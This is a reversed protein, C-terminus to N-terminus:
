PVVITDGPVLSVGQMDGKKVALTYDFPYRRAAQRRAPHLHAEQQRLPHTWRRHRHGAACDNRSLHCAPWRAHSRRDPLRAQQQRRSRQCRGGSRHRVAQPPQRHRRRAAHPHVRRRRHRGVAPALDKWRPARPPCSHLPQAGALGHDAPHRGRRHHLQLRRQIPPRHPSRRHSSARILFLNRPPQHRARRRTQRRACAHQSDAPGPMRRAGSCPLDFAARLAPLDYNRGIRARRPICGGSVPKTVRM